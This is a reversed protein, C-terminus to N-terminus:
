FGRPGRRSLLNLIGVALTAGVISWVLPFSETGFRLVLPEPMALVQALKQGVLAGIFGLLIAILCGGRSYGVLSQAICGCVGAVILFMLFELITM